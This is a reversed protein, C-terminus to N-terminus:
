WKKYIRCCSLADRRWSSIGRFYSKSNSFFKNSNCYTWCYRCWLRKICCCYKRQTYCIKCINRRSFLNCKSKYCKRCTSISLGQIILIMMVVVLSFNKRFSIPYRHRKIAIMVIGSLIVLYAIILIIMLWIFSFDKTMAKATEKFLNIMDFSFVDGYLYYLSFNVYFIVVQAGLMISTIVAQIIHNPIIFIIGAIMLIISLDYLWYKPFFGLDLRVFMAIELVIAVFIYYTLFGMKHYLSRFM